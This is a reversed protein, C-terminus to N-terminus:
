KGLIVIKKMEIERTFNSDIDKIKDPEFLIM